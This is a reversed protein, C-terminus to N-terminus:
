TGPVCCYEPISVASIRKPTTSIILPKAGLEHVEALDIAGCTCTWLLLPWRGHARDPHVVLALVRQCVPSRPAVATRWTWASNHGKSQDLNM